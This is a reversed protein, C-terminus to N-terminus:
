SDRLELGGEVLLTLTARQAPTGELPAAVVLVAAATDDPLFLVLSGRHLPPRCPVARGAADVAVLRGAATLQGVFRGYELWAGVAEGEALQPLVEAEYHRIARTFAETDAERLQRLRGRLPPRPDALGLGAAAEQLRAEARARLEADMAGLIRM